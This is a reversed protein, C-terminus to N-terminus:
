TKAHETVEVIAGTLDLPEEDPHRKFVFTRYGWFRFVMGFVLGVVNASINDALPSRLDLVYHSFALCGVAILMGIGNLLFFLSVERRTGSRARDRWTWHRNGLYTVVTAVAVSIGKATLPKHELVGPDGAFRLLNFLGVDVIFGLGGVIGFKAVEHALRRVRELM